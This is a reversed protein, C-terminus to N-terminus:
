LIVEKERRAEYQNRNAQIREQELNQDDAVQQAEERSEFWGHEPLTNGGNLQKRKGCKRCKGQWRSQERSLNYKRTATQQWHGCSPLVERDGLYREKEPDSACQWVFWRKAIGVDIPQRNTM